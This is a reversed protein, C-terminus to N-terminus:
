NPNQDREDGVPVRDEVSLGDDVFFSDFVFQSRPPAVINLREQRSPRDRRRRDLIVALM